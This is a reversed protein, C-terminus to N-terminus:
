ANGLIGSQRRKYDELAGGRQSVILGHAPPQSASLLVPPEGAPGSNGLLVEASGDPRSRGSSNEAPADPNKILEKSLLEPTRWSLGGHAVNQRM